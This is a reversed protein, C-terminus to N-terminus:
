AAEQWTLDSHLRAAITLVHETYQDGACWPCPGLDNLHRFDLCTRCEPARRTRRRADTEHSARTGPRTRRVPITPM